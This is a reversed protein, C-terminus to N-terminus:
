VTTIVSPVVVHELVEVAVTTFKLAAGTGGVMVGADNDMQVPPEACNNVALPELEVPFEVKEDPAIEIGIGSTLETPILWERETDPMEPPAVISLIMAVKLMVCLKSSSTITSRSAGFPWIILRTFPVIIVDPVFKVLVRILESPALGAIGAVPAGNVEVYLASAAKDPNWSAGDGNGVVADKLAKYLV